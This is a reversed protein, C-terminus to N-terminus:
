PAHSGGESRPLDIPWKANSTSNVIMSAKWVGNEDRLTMASIFPPVVPLANSMLHTTYNGLILGPGMACVDSATRVMHTVRQADLMVRYTDFGARLASEDPVSITSAETILTFPLAVAAAYTEFDGAVVADGVRDLWDQFIETDM